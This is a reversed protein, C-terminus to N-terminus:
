TKELVEVTEELLAIMPEPDGQNTWRDFASKEGAACSEHGHRKAADGLSCEDCNDDHRLCLACSAWSIPLSKESDDRLLRLGRIKIFPTEVKHLALADPRLGKWKRLCHRAADLESGNAETAESSDPYFEATWTDFSM